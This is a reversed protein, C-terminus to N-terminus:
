AAMEEGDILREFFDLASALQKKPCDLKNFSQSFSKGGPLREFYWRVHKRAIRKGTESGYFEYLAEIHHMVTRQMDTLSICPLLSGTSLYHEIEQFLWPRGQAARGIMVGAAGTATLVHKAKQPSDIDGNAIVPISVSKVVRAITDYEATGKYGCARSRGHLVLRSVGISQAIQAITHANNRERDWGTRYKLTVPIQVSKVVNELIEAVLKEDRLLASGAAKSCVKKAPCGMNIDVVHAGIDQCQQAALAMAKPCYGVIQIVRVPENGFTLRQSSKKTGWLKPNSSVMESTVWAAGFNQCLQRFPLDTIGAMPALAAQTSPTMSGSLDTTV